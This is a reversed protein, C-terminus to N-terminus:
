DSTKIFDTFYAVFDGDTFCYSKQWILNGLSDTKMIYGDNNNILDNNTCLGVLIIGGDSFRRGIYSNSTSNPCIITKNIKLDGSTYILLLNARGTLYIYGSLIITSDNYLSMGCETIQPYDQSWIIEGEPSIEVLFGRLDGSNPGLTGGILLIGDALQVISEQAQVKRERFIKENIFEGFSVVKIIQRM